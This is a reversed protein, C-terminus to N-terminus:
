LQYRRQMDQLFASTVHLTRRRQWHLLLFVLIAAVAVIGSWAMLPMGPKVVTTPPPLPPPLEFTTGSGAVPHFGAGNPTGEATAALDRLVEGPVTVPTLRLSYTVGNILDRLTYTEADGNIMRKETLNGAEVGYELLYASLPTSKKMTSWQLMLSTDGPVVSLRLGLVTASAVNSKEASEINNKLATVAFYYTTAQKLGAVTAASVSADTDLSYTFNDARDGVYVRYTDAEGKAVPEWKLAVSNMKAEATLNKITPPTKPKVTLSSLMETKNGLKDIATILPQYTGVKPPATFSTTYTGPQTATETLTYAAGELTMTVPASGAEGKVIVQTTQVEAPQPPDFEVSSIRPGVLDIRLHLPNSKYKGSTEEIQLTAGTVTTNLQVPILFAGNADSDGRAIETGGTVLLNVLPPANGKLTVTATNVTSDETPESIIIRSADPTTGGGTVTVTVSGQVNGSTDEVALTQEGGTNFRLGLTFTKVGLDKLTFQRTGFPLIAKPDTSSFRITGTYDEVTRGSQDEAVIRFTTDQRIPVSTRGGEIEVRFHDVVDFNTTLQGYLIRGQFEGVPVAGSQKGSDWVNRTDYTFTDDTNGGRGWEEGASITLPTDLVKGSLLDVARLSATGARLTSLSFAQQGEGNTEATLARVRDESRSSLLQVPRNALPNLYRDRLIVAIRIEDMGDAAVSTASPEISSERQDLTDPLVTFSACTGTGDTEVAYDGAVETEEGSVHLVAKGQADATIRITTPAGLPPLVRATIAENAAFGQCTIQAGLGAVTQSAGPAASVVPLSLVSILTVALTLASLKKM